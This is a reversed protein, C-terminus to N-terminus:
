DTLFGVRASGRGQVRPMPTERGQFEHLSPCVALEPNLYISPSRKLREQPHAPLACGARQHRELSASCSLECEPVSGKSVDSVWFPFFVPRVALLCRSSSPYTGRVAACERVAGAARRATGRTKWHQVAGARSGMPGVSPVVSVVPACVPAAPVEDRRQLPAGTRPLPREASCPLCPLLGAVSRPAERCGGDRCSCSKAGLPCPAAPLPLQPEVLREARLSQERLKGRLSDRPAAPGLM